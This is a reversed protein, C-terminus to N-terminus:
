YGCVYIDLCMLSEDDQPFRLVYDGDYLYWKDGVVIEKGKMNQLMSLFTDYNDINTGKIYKPDDLKDDDKEYNYEMLRVLM